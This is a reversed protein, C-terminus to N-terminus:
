RRKHVVYLVAASFLIILAAIAIFLGFSNGTKCDFINLIFDFYLESLEAPERIECNSLKKHFCQKAEYGISFFFCIKYLNRQLIISKKIKKRASNRAEKLWNLSSFMMTMWYKRFQQYHVLLFRITKYIIILNQM